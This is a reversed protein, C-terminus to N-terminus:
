RYRYACLLKMAKEAGDTLVALDVDSFIRPRADVACHAGLTHGGSGILPVGLYSRLGTMQLFPNDLHRPDTMGDVVCYPEGTLVTHTCLAWEAPAGQAEAVWGAVGHSGIIFQSTDLVVSVLSVSAELLGASRQCIADLSTRLDPDFLDYGAIERIREPVGLRDFLDTNM